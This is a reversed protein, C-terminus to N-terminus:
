LTSSESIPSFWVRLKQFTGFLHKILYKMPIVPTLAYDQKYQVTVYVKVIKGTNELVETKNIYNQFTIM